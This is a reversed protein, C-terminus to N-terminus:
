VPMFNMYIWKMFIFLFMYDKYLLLKSTLYHNFIIACCYAQEQSFDELPMDVNNTLAAIDFFCEIEKPWVM